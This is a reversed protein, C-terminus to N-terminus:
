LSIDTLISSILVHIGGEDAVLPTVFLTQLWEGYRILSNIWRSAGFALTSTFLSQFYHDVQNDEVEVHEM